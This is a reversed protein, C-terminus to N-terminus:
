NRDRYMCMQKHIMCDAALYHVNHGSLDESNNEIQQCYIAKVCMFHM